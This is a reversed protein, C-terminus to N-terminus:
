APYNVKPDDTFVVDESFGNFLENLYVVNEYLMFVDHNESRRIWRDDHYHGFCWTKWDCTDKIGNMWVEMTNDVTTQDISSLFLDTPRWSYPCTHSLVLDYLGRSAIEACDMREIENLQENKFWQFGSTLRYFKDVSYAGGIVLTRMDNIMYEGYNDFYRINPYAPQYYVDGGVNDDFQKIMGPVDEPRKEHNGRVAYIKFGKNNVMQKKINESEDGFYNIGFDGLVIVAHESPNDFKLGYLRQMRGHLDGTIHWHKIMM